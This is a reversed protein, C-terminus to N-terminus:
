GLRFKFRHTQSLTALLTSQDIPEPLELSETLGERGKERMRDFLEMNQDVDMFQICISVKSGDENPRLGGLRQYDVLHPRMDIRGFLEALAAKTQARTKYKEKTHFKVGKVM